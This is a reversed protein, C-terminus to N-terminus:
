NVVHVSEMPEDTQANVVLASIISSETEDQAYGLFGYLCFIVLVYKVM